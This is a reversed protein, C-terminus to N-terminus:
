PVDPSWDRALRRPALWQGLFYFTLRMLSYYIAHLLQQSVSSQVVVPCWGNLFAGLTSDGPKSAQQTALILPSMMLRRELWVKVITWSHHSTGARMSFVAGRNHGPKLCLPRAPYLKEGWQWKM